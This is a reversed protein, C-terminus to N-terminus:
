DFVEIIRGVHEDAVGGQFVRLRDRLGIRELAVIGPPTRFQDLVLGLAAFAQLVKQMPETEAGPGARVRRELLARDRRMLYVTIALTATGFLALFVCAEPWDVTGASLFLALGLVALLNLLGALAKVDLARM